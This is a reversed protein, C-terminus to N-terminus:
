FKPLNGGGLLHFHLHPVEQGGGPGTNVIARFGDDLKNEAALRPMLLVLDSILSAHEESMEKLSPIHERTIVLLHVNAKPNIDKIVILRDDEYVKDCPLDGALIKCFICDRAM